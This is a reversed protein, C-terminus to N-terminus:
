VFKGPVNSASGNNLLWVEVNPMYKKRFNIFHFLLTYSVSSLALRISSAISGNVYKKLIVVHRYQFTNNEYIKHNIVAM